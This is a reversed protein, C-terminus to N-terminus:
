KVERVFIVYDLSIIITQDDKRKQVHKLKLYKEDFDLLVGEYVKPVSGGEVYARSFAVKVEVNKNLFQYLM